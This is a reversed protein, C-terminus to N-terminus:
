ASIKKLNLPWMIWFITMVEANVCPMVLSAVRGDMPSVATMSYVYQRVIQSGVAARKPLPVWCRRTDSIRGFRAEDQFLVRLRKGAPAKKAADQM